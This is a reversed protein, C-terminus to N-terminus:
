WYILLRKVHPTNILGAM